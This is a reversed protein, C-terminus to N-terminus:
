KNIGRKELFDKAENVKTALFPSGGKDPHNAMMLRRHQEKLKAKSLNSEKLNLIQLAEKASMKPGFAGKHFAKGNIGPQKSKVFGSAFYVVGLAGFGTLWPHAGMWDCAQDFYWEASGEPAQKRQLQGTYQFNQAPPPPAQQSHDEGPIPLTPANM